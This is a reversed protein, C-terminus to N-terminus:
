LMWELGVSVRSDKHTPANQKELDTSLRVEPTIAYGVSLTSIGVEESRGPAVWSQTFTMDSAGTRSPVWRLRVGIQVGNTTYRDTELHRYGVVPALNVTHGLPLVYYQLTSGYAERHGNFSRQYDGSVTLGTRGLFVDELGVTLGATQENAPHSYGVRIRTRFSPDHRIDSRVDPIEELWRELVPSDQILAPDLDLETARSPVPSQDASLTESPALQHSHRDLNSRLPAAALPCCIWVLGSSVVLSFRAIIGISDMM